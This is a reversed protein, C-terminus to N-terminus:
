RVRRAPSYPNADTWRRAARAAGVMGVPRSLM